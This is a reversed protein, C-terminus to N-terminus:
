SKVKVCVQDGYYNNAYNCQTRAQSNTYTAVTKKTSLIKIITNM